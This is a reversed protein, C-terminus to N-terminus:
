HTFDKLVISVESMARAFIHSSLWSLGVNISLSSLIHWPEDPILSIMQPRRHFIACYSHTRNSRIAEAIWRIFDGDFTWSLSSFRTRFSMKWHSFTHASLVLPMGMWTIETSALCICFMRAFLFEHNCCLTEANMQAKTPAECHM